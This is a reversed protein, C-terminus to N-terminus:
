KGSPKVDNAAQVMRDRMTDYNFVGDIFGHLAQSEPGNENGADRRYSDISFRREGPHKAKFFAQDADESGLELRYDLKDEKSYVLALLYTNYPKLPEFPYLFVAYGSHLAVKQIPFVHLKAFDPDASKKHLEIVHAVQRDRSTKDGSEAYARALLSASRWDDPNAETLPKLLTLAYDTDGTEVASGATLGTVFNCLRTGPTLAPLLKKGSALTSAEDGQQAAKRLTDFLARNEPSLGVLPDDQASTAASDSSPSPQQGLLPCDAFATLVVCLSVQAARFKQKAEMM